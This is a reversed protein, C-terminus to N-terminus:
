AGMCAWIGKEFDWFNCSKATKCSVKFACLFHVLPQIFMRLDTKSLRRATNESFYMKMM